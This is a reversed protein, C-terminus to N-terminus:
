KDDYFATCGPFMCKYNGWGVLGYTHEKHTNTDVDQKVREVFESTVSAAAEDKALLAATYAARLASNDPDDRLKANIKFVDYFCLRFNQQAETEGGGALKDQRTKSQRRVAKSRQPSRSPRRKPSNLKPSKTKRKPSKTKRVLVPPM